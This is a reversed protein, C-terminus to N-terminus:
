EPHIIGLAIARGVAQPTNLAILKRRASALHVEVTRVSLGLIEAIDLQSKGAATWQLIETERASLTPHRLIRSLATPRMFRDHVHVALNQLRGITRGILDDWEAESCDRSISLLGVDGYPGRVPITMGLQPLGFDQFRDFVAHFNPDGKLRRWDVPAISRAARLLTPDIRQLDHAVYHRKWAEPYTVHGHITGSVPDTGAYAVHDFGLEAGISDITTTVPADAGGLDALDILKM